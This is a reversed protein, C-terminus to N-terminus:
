SLVFKYPRSSPMTTLRCSPPKVMIVAAMYPSGKQILILSSKNLLLSPSCHTLDPDTRWDSALKLPVEVCEDLQPGINANSALLLM